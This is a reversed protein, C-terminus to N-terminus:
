KFLIVYFRIKTLAFCCAICVCVLINYLHQRNFCKTFISRQRRTLRCFEFLSSSFLSLLSFVIQLFHMARVREGEEHTNTYFYVHYTCLVEFQVSTFIYLLCLMADCLITATQLILSKCCSSLLSALTHTVSYCYM